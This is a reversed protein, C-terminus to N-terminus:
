RLVSAVTVPRLAISLLALPPAPPLPELARRERLRQQRAHQRQGADLFRDAVDRAAELHDYLPLAIVDPPAGFRPKLTLGDFGCNLESFSTLPLQGPGVPTTISVLVADM